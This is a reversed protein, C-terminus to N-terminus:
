LLFFFRKKQTISEEAKKATQSFYRLLPFARNCHVSSQHAFARLTTRQKAFRQNNEWINNRFKRKTGKNKDTENTM